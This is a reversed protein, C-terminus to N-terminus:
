LCYSHVGCSICCVPMPFNYLNSPHSALIVCISFILNNEVSFQIIVHCLNPSLKYKTETDTSM